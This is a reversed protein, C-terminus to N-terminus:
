LLHFVGSCHCVSFQSVALKEMKKKILHGVQFNAFTSEKTKTYVLKNREQAHNKAM